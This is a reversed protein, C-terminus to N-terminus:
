PTLMGNHARLRPFLTGQLSPVKNPVTWGRV